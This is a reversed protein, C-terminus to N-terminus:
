TNNEMIPIQQIKATTDRTILTPIQQNDRPITMTKNFIQRKKFKPPNTPFESEKITQIAKKSPYNMTWDMM